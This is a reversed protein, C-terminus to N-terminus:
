FGEPPEHRRVGYAAYAHEDIEEDALDHLMAPGAPPPADCRLRFASDRLDFGDARVASRADGAFPPQTDVGRLVRWGQYAQLSFALLYRFSGPLADRLDADRVLSVERDGHCEVTVVRGDAVGDARQELREVSIGCRACRPLELLLHDLSPAGM